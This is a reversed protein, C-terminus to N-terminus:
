EFLVRWKTIGPIIEGPGRNTYMYGDADIFKIKGYKYNDCPYSKLFYGNNDFLDLVMTGRSVSKILRM